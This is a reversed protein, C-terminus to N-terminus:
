RHQGRNSYTWRCDLLFQKRFETSWLRSLLSLWGLPFQDLQHWTWTWLEFPISRFLVYYPSNKTFYLTEMLTKFIYKIEFLHRHMSCHVVTLRYDDVTNLGKIGLLSQCRIERLLKVQILSLTCSFLYFSSWSFFSESIRKTLVKPNIHLVTHLFYM